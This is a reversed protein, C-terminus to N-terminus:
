AHPVGEALEIAVCPRACVPCRLVIAREETVYEVQFVLRGPHDPCTVRLMVKEEESDAAVPLLADMETATLGGRAYSLDSM